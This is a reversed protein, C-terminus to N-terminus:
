SFCAAWSNRFTLPSEPPLKHSCTPLVGTQPVVSLSCGCTDPTQSKHLPHTSIHWTSCDQVSQPQLTNPSLVWSSANEASNRSRANLSILNTTSQKTMSPEELVAKFHLCCCPYKGNCVQLSPNWFLNCSFFKSKKNKGQQIKQVYRWRKTTQSKEQHPLIRHLVQLNIPSPTLHGQRPIEMGTCM